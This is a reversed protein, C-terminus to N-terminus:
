AADTEVDEHHKDNPKMAGWFIQKLTSCSTDEYKQANETKSEQTFPLAFEFTLSLSYRTM